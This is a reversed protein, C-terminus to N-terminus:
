DRVRTAEMELSQRLRKRGRHIGTKVTGLPMGTVSAIEAYSMQQLHRLDILLKYTAPLRDVARHVREWSERELMHGDLPRDPEALEVTEDIELAAMERRLAPIRNYCLNIVVRYLWTRFKAEARFTPLTRWARLFAEQSLDEAEASDGLTRLALNYVYPGHMKVLTEFAAADGRGARRVLAPEATAEQIRGEESQDADRKSKSLYVERITEGKVHRDL